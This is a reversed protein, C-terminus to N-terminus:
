RAVPADDPGGAVRADHGPGYGHDMMGHGMQGMMGPQMPM